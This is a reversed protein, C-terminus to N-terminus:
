ATEKSFIQQILRTIKGRSFPKSLYHTCGAKLFEERDGRMAFGTIAVIPTNKYRDIKRIEKTTDTGSMGKGLNIDMLILDYDSENVFQFAKEGSDTFEVVCLDKLFLRIIDISASDNEVILVKPKFDLILEKEETLNSSVEILKPSEVEHYNEVQPFVVKFSSGSGVTSTVSIEGKMIEVFNKTITLGLGTGEFHRNFGESVQRFEQFILGISDEPIGIGTDKVTIQVFNSNNEEVSDVIVKVGGTYTYKLANNILNNIIQRFIQEDVLALLNHDKIQTNLYLNKREAVAEFLLIQSEVLEAIRYPQLNIDVKRAEIRSLDLLLNLTEMLRNASTLIRDAMEQNPKAKLKEKLLEAFGLIGVLPTRLEHSMNALFNSKIKSLEEAKEKAEMLQLETHKRNTVDRLTVLIYEKGSYKIKNGLSEIWREESEITQIKYEDIVPTPDNKIRTIAQSVKEIYDPHLFHFVKEGIGQQPDNLGVLKAASNNAFIIEGDWDIILAAEIMNDILSSFREESEKLAVEAKKRYTIDRVIAQLYTDKGLVIKNLSVEADFLEGNLKKHKWEFRQPIGSLANKLKGAAKKTSLMGDPQKEPSFESPTKGIIENKKCGFMELTKKNCDVFRKSDMIFIADNALEFLSKYKLESLNATLIEGSYKKNSNKNKTPKNKLEILTCRILKQTKNKFSTATLSFNLRGTKNNQSKISKIKISKKNAIKDLDKLKTEFKDTQILSTLLINKPKKGSPYFVKGAPDSLEIVK